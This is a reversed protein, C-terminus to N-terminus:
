SNKSVLHSRLWRGIERHDVDETLSKLASYAVEKPIIDMRDKIVSELYQNSFEPHGQLCICHDGLVFGAIACQEHQAFLVANQPLQTVQDRCLMLM